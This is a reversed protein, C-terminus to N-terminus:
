LQTHDNYHNVDTTRHAKMSYDCSTSPAGAATHHGQRLQEEREGGIHRTTTTM